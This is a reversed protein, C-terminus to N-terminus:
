DLYKDLVVCDGDHILPWYNMGVNTSEFFSGELFRVQVKEQIRPDLYLDIKLGPKLKEYDRACDLFCQKGAGGEFLPMEITTQALAVLPFLLTVLAALVLCRQDRRMMGSPSELPKVAFGTCPAISQIHPSFTPAEHRAGSAGCRAIPRSWRGRMAQVM